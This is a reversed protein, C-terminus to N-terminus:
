ARRLYADAAQMTTDCAPAFQRIIQEPPMQSVWIQLVTQAGWVPDDTVKQILVPMSSTACAKIQAVIQPPVNARTLHDTIRAQVPDLILLQLVYFLISNLM